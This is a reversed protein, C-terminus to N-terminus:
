RDPHSNRPRYSQLLAPYGVQELALSHTDSNATGARLVGQSLLSFWLARYRLWDARSVGTMVEQVDWDM